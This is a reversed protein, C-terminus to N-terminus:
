KMSLVSTIDIPARVAVPGPEYPRNKCEPCLFSDMREIIYWGKGFRGDGEYWKVVKGGASPTPYPGENAFYLYVGGVGNCNPCTPIHLLPDTCHDYALVFVPKQHDRVWGRAIIEADKPLYPTVLM